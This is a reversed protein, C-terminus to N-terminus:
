YNLTHLQRKVPFCSPPLKSYPHHCNFILSIPTLPDLLPLAPSQTSFASSSRVLDPSLNSRHVKLIKFSIHLLNKILNQMHFWFLPVPHSFTEWLLFLLMQQEFAIPSHPHKQLLLHKCWKRNHLIPISPIVFIYFQSQIAFSRVFACAKAM